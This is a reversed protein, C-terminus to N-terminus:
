KMEEKESQEPEAASVPCRHVHRVIYYEIFYYCLYLSTHMHALHSNFNHFIGDMRGIAMSCTNFAYM